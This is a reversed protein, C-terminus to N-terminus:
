RRSLALIKQSARTGRVHGVNKIEAGDVRQERADHNPMPAEGPVTIVHDGCLRIVIHM